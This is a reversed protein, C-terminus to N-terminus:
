PIKATTKGSLGKWSLGKEVHVYGWPLVRYEGLCPARSIVTAFKLDKM